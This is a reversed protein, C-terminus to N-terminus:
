LLDRIAREALEAGIALAATAGPSPANVVHMTRPGGVILFDDILGGAPTMAQARIGTPGFSLHRAEVAPLYRRLEAVFARKSLDRWLEGAAMGLHRRGFRLVGSYGLASLADRPVLALRRYRERALALVANPGALISGDIRKTFHVGLFPFAPDPVPYLLGRVLHSSEPRLTYYDGRFPVIRVGPDAGSLRALRDSQLGACTIVHGTEIAEEATQVVTARATTDFGIVARGLRLEGGLEEVDRALARAVARYDIVGTGPVHLARIGAAQPEIERLGAGDLEALGSVGNALARRKLEELRVLESSDVAVVVKGCVDVPINNQEAYALLERRGSLCLSAKLSGPQYYVGSHVVGSNHGTQHHGVVPEKDLVVVRLAPRRTLLARATALGLIGAGVVTVDHRDTLARTADVM